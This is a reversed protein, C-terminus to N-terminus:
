AIKELIASRSPKPASKVSPQAGALPNFPEILHRTVIRCCRRREAPSCSSGRLDESRGEGWAPRCRAPRTGSCRIDFWGLVRSCLLEIVAHGTLFGLDAAALRHPHIREVGPRAPDAVSVYYPDEVVAAREKRAHAQGINRRPTM